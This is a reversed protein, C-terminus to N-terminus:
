ENGHFYIVYKKMDTYRVTPCQESHSLPQSGAQQSYNRVNSSMLSLLLRMIRSSPLLLTLEVQLLIDDAAATVTM